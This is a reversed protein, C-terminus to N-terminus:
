PYTGGFRGHRLWPMTGSVTSRRRALILFHYLDSCCVRDILVAADIDVGPDAPDPLAGLEAVGLHQMLCAFPCTIKLLLRDRGFVDPSVAGATIAGTKFHGFDQSVEFEVLIRQDGCDDIASHALALGIEGLDLVPKTRGDGMQDIAHLAHRRDTHRLIGAVVGHEIGLGLYLIQALHQDGHDIVHADGQDLQGLAGAGDPCDLVRRLLLAVPNGTLYEVDICRQGMTEPNTMDLPLQFIQGEAVQLRGLVLLNGLQQVLTPEVSLFIDVRYHRLQALCQFFRRNMGVNGTPGLMDVRDPPLHLALADIETLYVVHACHPNQHRLHTIAVGSKPYNVAKPPVNGVLEVVVNGVGLFVAIARQMRRHDAGLALHQFYLDTGLGHMFLGLETNAGVPAVLPGIRVAAGVGVLVLDGPQSLHQFPVLLHAIDAPQGFLQPHIELRITNVQEGGVAVHQVHGLARGRQIEGIPYVGLDTM